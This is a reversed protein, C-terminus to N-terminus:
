QAEHIGERPVVLDHYVGGVLVLGAKDNPLAKVAVLYHRKTKFICTDCVLTQYVLQEFWLNSSGHFYVYIVHDGFRQCHILM